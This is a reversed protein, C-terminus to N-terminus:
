RSARVMGILSQSTEILIKFGEQYSNELKDIERHFRLISEDPWAQGPCREHLVASSPSVYSENFAKLEAIQENYRRKLKDWVQSDALLEVINQPNGGNSELVQRRKTPTLLHFLFFAIAKGDAGPPCWRGRVNAEVWSTNARGHPCISSSGFSASRCIRVHQFLDKVWSSTWPNGPRTQDHDLLRRAHNSAKEFKFRISEACTALGEGWLFTQSYM